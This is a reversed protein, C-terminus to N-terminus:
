GTWGRWFPTSTDASLLANKLSAPRVSADPLQDWPLWEVELHDEQSVPESTNIAVEFVLNLEHHSTGDQIYGHEVAGVFQGIKAHVGLEESLERILASEIPEGPKVHGGPLFYWSSGRQRALLLHGDRRIVARAILEPMM